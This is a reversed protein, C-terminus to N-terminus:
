TSYESNIKIYDYSLDTTLYKAQANGMGLDINITIERRSLVDELYNPDYDAPKGRLLLPIKEFYISLRNEDVQAGSYGVACAIRGWNPDQGFLATKVLLSESISRAAKKADDEDMAGNVSIRLLKTAGEGDRVIMESLRDLLHMLADEFNQLDNELTIYKKSIPSLIIATDSTSMDGDITISNLSKMISRTFIRKLMNKEIPFDTLIFALLTAMNPAIMGSGKATGAIRYEGLSSSFSVAIEKPSTDTTMIASPILDANERDLNGILSPIANKMQELPLQVGIIGTSAMLISNSDVDMQRAVEQTLTISNHYGEDGTCANANTSNILIGHIPNDIRERCISVASSPLRNTTFLGSANCPNQSFIMAFDLRGKYRIGCEIASFSFGNVEKLGGSLVKVM